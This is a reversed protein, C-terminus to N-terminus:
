NVTIGTLAATAFNGAAPAASSELTMATNVSGVIDLGSLTVRDSTGAALVFAVSWLITGAGSAGDRLNFYIIGQAAVAALSVSVSKCVHRTGPIAARSASAQTAVAPQSNVAWQGAGTVLAAHSQQAAALNAAAANQMRDFTAGNWMQPRSAVALLGLTLAAQADANDALSRLRDWNGAADLGQLKAAIGQYAAGSQPQADTNMFVAPVKYSGTLPDFVYVQVALNACQSNNDYVGAVAAPLTGQVGIFDGAVVKIIGDTSVQMNSM